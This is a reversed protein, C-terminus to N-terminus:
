KDLSIMAPSIFIIILFIFFLGLVNSKIKIRNYILGVNINLLKIDNVMSAIQVLMHSNLNM